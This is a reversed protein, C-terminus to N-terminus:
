KQRSPDQHFAKVRAMLASRTLHRGRRLAQYLCMLPYLRRITSLLNHVLLSASRPKMLRSAFCPVRSIKGPMFYAPTLKNINNSTLVGLPTARHDTRIAQTNSPPTQVVKKDFYDVLRRKKTSMGAEFNKEECLVVRRRLASCYLLSWAMDAANGSPGITLNM